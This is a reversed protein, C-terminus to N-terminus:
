TAIGEWCYFFNNWCRHIKGRGSSVTINEGELSLSAWIFLEKKEQRYNREGISM